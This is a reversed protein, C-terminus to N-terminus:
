SVPEGAEAIMTWNEGGDITQYLHEQSTGVTIINENEPHVALQMVADNHELTLNLPDWTEGFDRSQMLGSPEGLLYATVVGEGHMSGEGISLTMGEHMLEWSEGSDSSHFIGQPLGMMLSSPDEPDSVIAYAAVEGEPLGTWPLKEWDSGSNFSRYLVAEQADVGYLVESNGANVELVHFDVEGHLAVPEWSGGRDKSTVVGIPNQLDSEAAPHGSSIMTEDDLFNFGMLDHREEEPAIWHWQNHEDIQFLGHHTGVYLIDPQLPDYSLGHIHMFSTVKERLETKEINEEETEQMQTTAEAGNHMSVEIDDTNEACASLIFLATGLATLGVKKM